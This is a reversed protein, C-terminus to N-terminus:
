DNWKPLTKIRWFLRILASRFSFSELHLIFSGKVAM